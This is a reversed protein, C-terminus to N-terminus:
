GQQLPSARSLTWDTVDVGSTGGDDRALGSGCPAIHVKFGVEIVM